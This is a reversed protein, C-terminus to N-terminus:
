TPIVLVPAINEVPGVMSTIATIDTPVSTSSPTANEEPFPAPAEQIQAVALSEISIQQNNYAEQSRVQAPKSPSPAESRFSDNNSKTEARTSNETKLIQSALESHLGSGKLFGREVTVIILAAAAVLGALLLIPLFQM